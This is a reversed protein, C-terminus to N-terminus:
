SASVAQKIQSQNMTKKVAGAIAYNKPLVNTWFITKILFFADLRRFAQSETEYKFGLARKVEVLDQFEKKFVSYYVSENM